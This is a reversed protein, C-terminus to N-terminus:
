LLRKTNFAGVLPDSGTSPFSPPGLSVRRQSRKFLDTSPLFSYNKRKKEKRWADMSLPFTEGGLKGQFAFAIDTLQEDHGAAAAMM